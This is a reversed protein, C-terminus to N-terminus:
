SRTNTGGMDGVFSDRTSTAVSAFDWGSVKSTIVPSSGVFSYKRIARSDACDSALLFNYASQNPYKAVNNQLREFYSPIAEVWVVPQLLNSYRQAEQGEHAGVHFIGRSQRM